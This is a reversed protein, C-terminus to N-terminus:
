RLRTCLGVHYDAVFSYQLLSRAYSPEPILYAPHPTIVYGFGEGKRYACSYTLPPQWRFIAPAADFGRRKMVINSVDRIDVIDPKIM